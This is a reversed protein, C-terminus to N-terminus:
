HQLPSPGGGEECIERRRLKSLSLSLTLILSKCYSFVKKKKNKTKVAWGCAVCNPWVDFVRWFNPQFIRSISLDYNHRWSNSLNQICLARFSWFHFSNSYASVQMFLNIFDSWTLKNKTPKLWKFGIHALSCWRRSKTEACIEPSVWIM